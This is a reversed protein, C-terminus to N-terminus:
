SPQPCWLQHPLPPLILPGLFSPLSILLFPYEGVQEGLMEWKFGSLYKMTWIDDRWKDGPRGGIPQANMM